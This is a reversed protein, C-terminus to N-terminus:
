IHFRGHLRALLPALPAPPALSLFPFLPFSLASFVWHSSNPTDPTRKPPTKPNPDSLPHEQPGDLPHNPSRQGRGRVTSPNPGAPRSPGQPSGQTPKPTDWIRPHSNPTPSPTAPGQHCERRRTAGPDGFRWTGCRGDGGGGLGESVELLASCGWFIVFIVLGAGWVGGSFGGLGPRSPACAHARGRKRTSARTQTHVSVRGPTPTTTTPPPCPTGGSESPAESQGLPGDLLRQERRTGGRRRPADYLPAPPSAPLPCYSTEAPTQIQLELTADAGCSGM